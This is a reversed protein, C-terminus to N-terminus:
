KHKGLKWELKSHFSRSMVSLNNKRFNNVNGDRHHVVEDNRLTRGKINSAVSRHMLKGNRTLPYGNKNKKLFVM